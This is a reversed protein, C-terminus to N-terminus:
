SYDETTTLDKDTFNSFQFPTSIESVNLRTVELRKQLTVVNIVVIEICRVSLQVVITLQSLSPKLVIKPTPTVSGFNEM